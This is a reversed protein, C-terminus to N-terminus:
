ESVADSGRAYFLLGRADVEVVWREGHPDQVVCPSTFEAGVAKYYVPAADDSPLRRFPIAHDHAAYRGTHGMVELGKPVRRFINRERDSNERDIAIRLYDDLTLNTDNVCSAKAAVSDATPPEACAAMGAAVFTVLCGRKLTRLSRM